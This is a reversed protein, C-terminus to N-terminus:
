TIVSPVWPATSVPPLAAASLALLPIAPISTLSTPKAAVAPFLGSGLPGPTPRAFPRRQLSRPKPSHLKQNHSCLLLLRLRSRNNQRLQRSRMLLLRLRRLRPSCPGPNHPRLRSRLLRLSLIQQQPRPQSRRPLLRQHM